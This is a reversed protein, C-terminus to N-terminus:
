KNTNYTNVTLFSGGIHSIDPVIPSYNDKAIIRSQINDQFRKELNAQPNLFPEEWRTQEIDRYMWAPHTSRSEDIFGPTNPYSISKGGVANSKYENTNVDDRNLKRSLGRLDSELNVTNSMLNAGWFQLRMQPDEIFPLDKGPGPTTLSYKGPFSSEEIQKKIRSPDDHFRTFSM